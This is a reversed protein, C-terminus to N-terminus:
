DLVLDPINEWTFYEDKAKGDPRPTRSRISDVTYYKLETAPMEFDLIMKYDGPTLDESLWLKYFEAPVMLPMRYANDGGNHIQKMVSNATRTILAMTFRKRIIGEMDAVETVSYLSPILFLSQNKLSIHYPVKKKQGPVERHEYFATIPLLCRRNRIKYWYSKQDELIRESRINLMSARQKLFKAEEKVYFPICGWEMLKCHPKFDERNTYVVPVEQYSHGMIHASHNFDIEIQDDYTIEPFYDSIEKIDAKFSIDYCM